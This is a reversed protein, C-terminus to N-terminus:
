LAEQIANELQTFSLEIKPALEVAKEIEQFGNDAKLAFTFWFKEMPLRMQKNPYYRCRVLTAPHVLSEHSVEGLTAVIEVESGWRTYIM